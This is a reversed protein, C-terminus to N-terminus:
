RKRQMSVVGFALLILGGVIMFLFVYEGYFFSRAVEPSGFTGRETLINLTQSGVALMGAVGVAMLVAGAITVIKKNKASSLLGIGIGSRM